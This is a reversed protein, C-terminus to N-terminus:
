YRSKAYQYVETRGFSTGNIVFNLYATRSIYNENPSVTVTVPTSGAQGESPTVTVWDSNCVMTWPLDSTITMYFKDGGAEVSKYSTYGSLSPKSQEVNIEINPSFTSGYYLCDYRLSVSGSRSYTTTNPEATITLKGNSYTATLFSSVDGVRVNDCNTTVDVIKSGGAASFNVSTPNFNVVPSAEEQVVKTTSTSSSSRLTINGRRKRAASPNDDFRCDVTEDGTGVSPNFHIWSADTSLTWQTGIARVKLQYTANRADVNFSDAQNYFTAYDGDKSVTYEGNEILSDLKGDCATTMAALMPLVVVPIYLKKMM